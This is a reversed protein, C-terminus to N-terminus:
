RMHNSLHQLFQIKKIHKININFLTKNQNHIEYKHKM